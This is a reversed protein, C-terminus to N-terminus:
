SRGSDTWALVGYAALPMLAAARCVPPYGYGDILAGIAPSVLAQVAGYASVLISVAFAARAGGFADLPMTYMNVSFAAATCLSLSIGASSWIPGPALPILATELALVASILCARRRAALATLGGNM